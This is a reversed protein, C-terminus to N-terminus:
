HPSALRTTGVPIWGATAGIVLLQSQSGVLTLVSIVLHSNLSPSLGFDATALPSILGLSLSLFLLNISKCLDVTDTNIDM